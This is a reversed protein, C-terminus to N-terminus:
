IVDKRWILGWNWLTVGPVYRSPDNDSDRLNGWAGARYQSTMNVSGRYAYELTQGTGSPSAALTVQVKGIGVTGGSATGTGDDTITVSSIAVTGASDRFVFGKSGSFQTFDPLTTTDFVLPPVPVHFPVTIVTGVRTPAGSPRLGTWWRGRRFIWDRTKAQYEGKIDYGGAYLHPGGGLYGYVTGKLMYDATSIAWLQTAATTNGAAEDAEVVDLQALAIESAGLADEAAAVTGNATLQGITMLIPRPSGFVGVRIDADYDSRISTLATSYGSRTQTGLPLLGRDAQGQEWHVARTFTGKGFQSLSLAQAKQAYAIGNEFWGGGKVLNAIVQGGKGHAIYLRAGRVAGAAIERESLSGMLATGMSETLNRATRIEYSPRLYIIQAPDLAEDGVLSFAGINGTSLSLSNHPDVPNPLSITGDSTGQNLSQGYSPSYEIAVVSEDLGAVRYARNIIVSTWRGRDWVQGRIFVPSIDQFGALALSAWASAPLLAYAEDRSYSVRGVAYRAADRTLWLELQGTTPNISIVRNGAADVWIPTVSYDQQATVTGRLGGPFEYTQDRYVLYGPNGAEDVEGGIPDADDYIADRSEVVDLRTSVGQVTTTSTQVLVGSRKTWIGINATTPDATVEYSHGESLTGKAADALAFTTFSGALNAASAANQAAIDAAARAAEAATSSAAAAAVKPNVQETVQAAVQAAAQGAVVPEVQEAVEAEVRSPLAANIQEVQQRATEVARADGDTQAASAEAAEQARLAKDRADRAALAVSSEGPGYVERLNDSM